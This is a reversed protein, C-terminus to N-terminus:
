FPTLFCQTYYVNYKGGQYVGVGLEKYDGLIANRHDISNIWAEVSYISSRQGSAINEAAKWYYINENTLRDFPTENKLNLHNFFNNVAMDKSHNRAVNAISENFELLSKENKARFANTIDFVQRETSEVLDSDYKGYYSNLNDEVTKDLLLISNLNDDNFKDFFLILYSSELEYMDWDENEFYYKVKNKTLYELPKGMKKLITDRNDGISIDNDFKWNDGNSFIAVVKNNKVGIQFYDLYNKNYINWKFDYISEDERNAEGVLSVLTEKKDGISIEKFSIKNNLNSAKQIKWSFKLDMIETLFIEPIYSRSNIIKVPYNIKKNKKNKIIKNSNVQLVYSNDQLKMVIVKIKSFWYLKADLANSIDRLEIYKIGEHKVYSVDVSKTENNYLIEMNADKIDYSKDKDNNSLYTSELIVNENGSGDNILYFYAFLFLIFSILVLNRIKTM